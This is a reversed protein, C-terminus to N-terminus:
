DYFCDEFSIIFYNGFMFWNDLSLVHMDSSKPLLKFFDNFKYYQLRTKFYSITPILCTM